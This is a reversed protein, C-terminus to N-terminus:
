YAGRGTLVSQRRSDTRKERTHTKRVDLGITSKRLLSASPSSGVLDQGHTRETSSLRVRTCVTHELASEVFVHLRSPRWPTFLLRLVASRSRPQRQRALCRHATHPLYHHGELTGSCIPLATWQRDQSLAFGDRQKQSTFTRQRTIRRHLKHFLSHWQIHMPDFPSKGPTEVRNEQLDIALELSSLTTELTTTTTAIKSPQFITQLASVVSSLTPLVLTWFAILLALVGGRVSHLTSSVGGSLFEIASQRCAQRHYAVELRV